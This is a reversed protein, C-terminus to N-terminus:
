DDHLSILKSLGFFGLVFGLWYTFGTTNDAWISIDWNGWDESVLHLIAGLLKASFSFPLIMGHWLGGFFGFEHEGAEAPACSVMLLCLVIMCVAIALRQPNTNNRKM